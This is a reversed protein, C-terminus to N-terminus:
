HKPWDVRLPSGTVAWTGKLINTAQNFALYSYNGYHPIKRLVSQAAALTPSWYLAKIGAGGGTSWVAFVTDAQPPIEVASFLLRGNELRAGPPLHDHDPAGIWISAETPKGGSPKRKL